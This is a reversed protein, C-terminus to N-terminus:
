CANVPSFLSPPLSCYPSLLCLVLAFPPSVQDDAGEWWRNGEGGSGSAAAPEVAWGRSGTDPPPTPVAPGVRALLESPPTRSGAGAGASATAKDGQGAAASPAAGGPGPPRRTAAAGNIADRTPPSLRAADDDGGDGVACLATTTTNAAPTSSEAPYSPNGGAGGFIDDVAQAYRPFSRGGTREACRGEESGCEGRM